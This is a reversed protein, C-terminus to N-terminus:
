TLYHTPMPGRTSSKSLIKAQALLAPTTPRPFHFLDRRLEKPTAWDGFFSDAPDRQKVAVAQGTLYFFAEV